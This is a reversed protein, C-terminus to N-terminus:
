EEKDESKGKESQEMEDLEDNIIRIEILRKSGIIFILLLILLELYHFWCNWLGIGPNTNSTEESTEESTEPIDTNKTEDIASTEGKISTELGPKLSQDPQSSAETEPEEKTMDQKIEEKITESRSEVTPTVIWPIRGGGGNGGGPKRDPQPEPPTVPQDTKKKLYITFAQNQNGNDIQYYEPQTDSPEFPQYGDPPYVIIRHRVSVELPFTLQGDAGTISEDASSTDKAYVMGGASGNANTIEFFLKTGSLLISHDDWDKVIFTARYFLRDLEVVEFITDPDRNEQEQKPSEVKHNGSVGPVEDPAPRSSYDTGSSAAYVSAPVMSAISVAALIAVGSSGIKRRINIKMRKKKM